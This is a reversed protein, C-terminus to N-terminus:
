KLIRFICIKVVQSSVFMCFLVCVLFDFGTRNLTVSWVLNFQRWCSLLLLIVTGLRRLQLDLNKWEGTRGPAVTTGVYVCCGPAKAIFCCITGYMGYLCSQSAVQESHFFSHKLPNGLDAEQLASFCKGCPFLATVLHQPWTIIYCNQRSLFGM